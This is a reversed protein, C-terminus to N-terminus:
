LLEKLLTETANIMDDPDTIPATLYRWEPGWERLLIWETMLKQRIDLERGCFSVLFEFSHTKMLRYDPDLRYEQWQQHRCISAKLACEVAYGCMYVAGAFRGTDRLAKADDIRERAVAEFEPGTMFRVLLSTFELIEAIFFGGV